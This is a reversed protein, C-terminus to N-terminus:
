TMEINLLMRTKEPMTAFYIKEIQMSYPETEIKCCFVSYIFGYQELVYLRFLQNIETHDSQSSDAEFSYGDGKQTLRCIDTYLTNIGYILDCAIQPKDTNIQLKLRALAKAEAAKRAEEIASRVPFKIQEKRTFLRLSFDTASPAPLCLLERGCVMQRILHKITSRQQANGGLEDVLENSDVGFPQDDIFKYIKNKVSSKKRLPKITQFFEDFSYNPIFAKM